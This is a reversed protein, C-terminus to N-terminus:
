PAGADRQSRASESDAALAELALAAGELRRVLALARASGATLEGREVADLVRRIMAAAEQATTEITV